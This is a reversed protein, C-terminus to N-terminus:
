RERDSKIKDSIKRNLKKNGALNSMVMEDTKDYNKIANIFATELIEKDDIEHIFRIEPPEEFSDTDEGEFIGQSMYDTDGLGEFPEPAEADAYDYYPEEPSDYFYVEEIDENYPEDIYVEKYVPEGIEPINKLQSEIYKEFYKEEAIAKKIVDEFFEEEERLHIKILEEYKEEELQYDSVLTLFEEDEKVEDLTMEILYDEYSEESYQEYQEEFRDNDNFDFDAYVHREWDDEPYDYPNWDDRPEAYRFRDLPDEYGDDYGQMAHEKELADYHMESEIYNDISYQIRKEYKESEIMEDIIGQWFQKEEEEKSEILAKIYQDNDTENCTFKKEAM